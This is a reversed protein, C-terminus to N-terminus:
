LEIRTYRGEDEKTFKWGQKDMDEISQTLMTSLDYPLINMLDRYNKKNYALRIFSKNPKIYNVNKKYRNPVARKSLYIYKVRAGGNGGMIGHIYFAVGIDSVDCYNITFEKRFLTHVIVRDKEFSAVSLFCNAYFILIILLMILPPISYLPILYRIDNYKDSVFIAFLCPVIVAALLFIGLCVEMYTGLYKKM